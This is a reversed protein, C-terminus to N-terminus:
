QCYSYFFYTYAVGCPLLAVQIVELLKALLASTRSSVVYPCQASKVGLSGEYLSVSFTLVCGGERRQMAREMEREVKPDRPNCHVSVDPHCHCLCPV